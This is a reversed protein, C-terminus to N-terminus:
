RTRVPRNPRTPENNIRNEAVVQDVLRRLDDSLRRAELMNNRVLATDLRRSINQLEILSDLSMTVETPMPPVPTWDVGSNVLCNVAASAQNRSAMERCIQESGNFYEKNSIGQLCSVVANAQNYDSIVRCVGAAASNMYNNASVKLANTVANPQNFRAIGSIAHLADPSFTNDYIAQMCTVTGQAQNYMAVQKCIDAAAKEVIRNSGERMITLAANSQSYNAMQMAVDLVSQEYRGRSIEAACQSGNSSSNLSIRRCVDSPTTQAYAATGLATFAALTLFLKKM